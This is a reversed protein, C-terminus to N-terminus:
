QLILIKNFFNFFIHFIKFSLVCFIKKIHNKLIHSVCTQYLKSYIERFWKLLFFPFVGYNQLHPLLELFLLRLFPYFSIKLIYSYTNSNSISALPLFFYFSVFLNSEFRSFFRPIRSWIRFVITFSFTINSWFRVM